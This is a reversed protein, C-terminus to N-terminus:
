HFSPPEKALVCLHLNEDCKTALDPSIGSGTPRNKSNDAEPSCKTYDTKTDDVDDTCDVAPWLGVVHFQAVCPPPVTGGGDPLPPGEQVNYTLDAVMQTGPAAPTNYFKVATWHYKITIRPVFPSGGGGDPGPPVADISDLNQEIDSPGSLACFNDAGPEPSAWDGLAYPHHSTDPDKGRNGIEDAIALPEFGLSGHNPDLNSKDALPYNYAEVGIQEGKPACDPATGITSNYVAAFAGHGATCKIRPQDSCSAALGVVAGAAALGSLYL